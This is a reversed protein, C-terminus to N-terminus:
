WTINLYYYKTPDCYAEISGLGDLSLVGPYVDAYIIRSTNWNNNFAITKFKPSDCGLSKAELPEGFADIIPSGSEDLICTKYSAYGPSVSFTIFVTKGTPISIKYFDHDIFTPTGTTPYKYLKGLVMTNPKIIYNAQAISNNTESEYLTVQGSSGGTYRAELYSFGIPVRVHVAIYWLGALPNNVRITKTIGPGESTQDYNTLTPAIGRKVYLDADGFGGWAAVELKGQKAPIKLMFYQWGPKDLSPDIRQGNNIELAVPPSIFPVGVTGWCSWVQAQEFSKSGYLDCAAQYTCQRVDSYNAFPTLYVTLARYFIQEAKPIGLGYVQGNTTNNPHTGGEALLYFALSAVASGEYKNTKNTSNPDIDIDPYYDVYTNDADNCSQPDRLSRLPMNPNNLTWWDEGISWVKFHDPDNFNAGGSYSKAYAEVCAGMIDSFAEGLMASECNVILTASSITVGHGFEHAVTDLAKTPSDHGPTTDAFFAAKHEGNWFALSSLIKSHVSAKMKTGQNDFSNRNFRNKLYNYTTALKPYISKTADDAGALNWGEKFILTGPNIPKEKPNQSGYNYIERNLADYMQNERLILEGSSADAYITSAESGTEVAFDYAARWVLRSSGNPTLIYALTPETLQQAEIRPATQSQNESSSRLAEIASDLAATASLRPTEAAEGAAIHGNMGVVRGTTQEVHIIMVAGIVPLGNLHQQFRYHVQGIRDVETSVHMYSDNRESKLLPRARELFELASAANSGQVRGLDGFVYAPTGNVDPLLSDVRPFQRLTERQSDNLAAMCAQLNADPVPASTATTQQESNGSAGAAILALLTVVV